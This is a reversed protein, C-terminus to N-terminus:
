RSQAELALPREPPSGGGGAPSGEVPAEPAGSAGTPTDPPRLPREHRLRWDPPTRPSATAGQNLSM